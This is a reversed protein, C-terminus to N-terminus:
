HYSTKELRFFIIFRKLNNVFRFHTCIYRLWTNAICISRASINSSAGFFTILNLYNKMTKKISETSFNQPLCLRWWVKTGVVFSISRYRKHLTNGHCVRRRQLRLANAARLTNFIENSQKYKRIPLFNSIIHWLVLTRLSPYYLLPLRNNYVLEVTHRINTDLTQLKLVFDFAKLKRLYSFVCKYHLCKPIFNLFLSHYIFLLCFNLYQKILFLVKPIEEM